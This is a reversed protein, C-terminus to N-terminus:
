EDQGMLGASGGEEEIFMGGRVAKTETDAANAGETEEAAAGDEETEASSDAKPQAYLGSEDEQGEAHLPPLENLSSIGFARLFADTTKFAIPRGPLDLRGAECVLEKEVLSAVTTSSDVGRVQEIFSRSVPQNYAIIALVELAAPTLPTNRRHDLAKKVYDGSESKTAYQWGSELRILQVGRCDDDCDDRLTLLVREVTEEDAELIDALRQSTVPEANAFLVAELHAKLQKLDM